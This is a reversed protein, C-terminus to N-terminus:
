GAAPLHEPIQNRFASRIASVIADRARGRDKKEVYVNTKFLLEQTKTHRSFGAVKQLDPVDEPRGDTLYMLLERAVAFWTKWSDRSLEPLKSCKAVFSEFAEQTDTRKLRDCIDLWFPRVSAEQEAVIRAFQEEAQALVSAIEPLHKVPAAKRRVLAVRHDHDSRARAIGSFCRLLQHLMFASSKATSPEGRMAQSISFRLDCKSGLGVNKLHRVILTAGHQNPFLVVPWVEHQSMISHVLDPQCQEAESLALVARAALHVLRRLAFEDGGNAKRSLDSIRAQEDSWGLIAAQFEDLSSPGSPNMGPQPQSPPRNIKASNRKGKPQPRSTSQKPTKSTKPLAKKAM